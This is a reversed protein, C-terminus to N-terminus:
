EEENQSIEKKYMKIDGTALYWIPYDIRKFYIPAHKLGAPIFIACNKKLIHKEGGLWLEVEGGLDDSNEHNTGLFVLYEDFDHVHEEAPSGEGTIKKWWAAMFYFAEPVVDNDVYIPVTFHEENIRKQEETLGPQGMGEKPRDIIYKGYKSEDM